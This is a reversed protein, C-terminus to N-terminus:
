ASAALREAPAPEAAPRPRAMARAAELVLRPATTGLARALVDLEDLGVTADGRVWRAVSTLPLGSREALWRRSRGQRGLAARLEGAVAAELGAGDWKQSAREM